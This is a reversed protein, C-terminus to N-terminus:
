DDRSGLTKSRQGILSEEVEVGGKDMQLVTPRAHLGISHGVTM